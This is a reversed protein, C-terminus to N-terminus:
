EGKSRSNGLLRSTGRRACAVAPANDPLMEQVHGYFAALGGGGTRHIGAREGGGGAAELFARRRQYRHRWVSGQAACHNAGSLYVRYTDYVSGERSSFREASIRVIVVPFLVLPSISPFSSQYACM